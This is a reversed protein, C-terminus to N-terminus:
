IDSELLSGSLVCQTRSLHPPGSLTPPILFAAPAFNGENFAANEQTQKQILEKIRLMYLFTVTQFTQLHLAVSGQYIVVFCELLVRM